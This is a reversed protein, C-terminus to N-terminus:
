IHILSLGWGRGAGQKEAKLALGGEQMETDREEHGGRWGGGVGVLLM